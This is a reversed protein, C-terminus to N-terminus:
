EDSHSGNSVELAMLTLDDHDWSGETYDHLDTLIMNKVVPLELDGYENLLDLLRNEGYLQKEKNIGETVGDTYLFLRDGPSLEIETQDYHTDEKIGLPLNSAGETNELSAPHWEKEDKRKIYIPPHGAYSFYLNNKNRYFAVIAATTIAEFGRSYLKSNLETLVSNGDLRNMRKVLSDYVWCSVDSVDEGHGVVDAIAIRTLMDHGCVSFYYIDGGKGGNCASSYLSATLAGTKVDLNANKIGGWITSCGVTHKQVENM